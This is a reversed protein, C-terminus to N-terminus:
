SENHQLYFLYFHQFGKRIGKREKMLITYLKVALVRSEWIVKVIDHGFQHCIVPCVCLWSITLNNVRAQQALM